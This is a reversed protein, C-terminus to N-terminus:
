FLLLGLGRAPGPIRGPPGGPQGPPLFVSSGGPPWRAGSKVSPGNSAKRTLHVIAYFAIAAGFSHDAYPLRLLDAQAFALHPNIGQAVRVMGPSLDVGLLDAAGCGAMFRTTHGPGCGLDVIKGRDRNQAVFAQLLLRDLPKEQLEDMFQQAYQAATRDYADIVKRQDPM